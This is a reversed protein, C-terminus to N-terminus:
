QAHCHSDKEAHEPKCNEYRPHWFTNKIFIAQSFHFFNSVCVTLLLGLRACERMGDFPDCLLSFFEVGINKMKTHTGDERQLQGYHCIRGM